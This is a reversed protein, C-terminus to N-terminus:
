NKFFEITDKSFNGKSLFDDFDVKFKANHEKLAIPNYPNKNQWEKIFQLVTENEQKIVNIDTTM